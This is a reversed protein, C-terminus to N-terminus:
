IRKRLTPCQLLLQWACYNIYHVYAIRVFIAVSISRHCLNSVYHFKKSDLALEKQKIFKYLAM